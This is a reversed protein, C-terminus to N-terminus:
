ESFIRRYAESSQMLEEHKGIAVIRGKRMVIILDAWRIQSLRHTIIITTRGQSAAWIAQQIKDETASDIASTADDLILIKPDTIFARALALRQRQGGSLTVGREGLVTDFGDQFQEIFELAQAEKAANKIEAFDAEPKGFGINEKVNKSFLFIDQEIISINQRLGELNWERVDIGDVLVQGETVDFIRNISKALTTKGAGTQGVIAVTQGATVHFSIGELVNENEKYAFSVNKFELDGKMEGNYGKENQDLNNEQLILELIRRGSSIGLSIQSYAFISVFTPFDLLLLLGYYGVVQGIDLLGASFLILAHLLGVSTAVGLLLLPLFRAEIEGQQVSSNRYQSANNRFLSVEDEERTAAKVTEIGDLAEALRSNLVGFTERVKQTVPNLHNLYDWLALFYFVIFLIPALVLSPHYRPAIIIPMILFNFSGVVLNVGPSFMFNIERVDNTARAMTEGMSQLNHFTMSKGLLNTYLEDRVNKEIKQAM